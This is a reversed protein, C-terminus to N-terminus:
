TAQSGQESEKAKARERPLLFNNRWCHTYTGARRRKVVAAVGPIDLPCSIANLCLWTSTSHAYVRIRDKSNSVMFASLLLKNDSTQLPLPCSHAQSDGALSSARPACQYSAPAGEERVQMYSTGVKKLPGAKKLSTQSWNSPCTFHTSHSAVHYIQM